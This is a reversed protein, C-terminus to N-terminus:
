EKEVARLASRLSADLGALLAEAGGEGEMGGSGPVFTCVVRLPLAHGAVVAPRAALDDRLAFTKHRLGDEQGTTMLVALGAGGMVGVVDSTRVTAALYRAMHALAEEAAALGLRLHLREFNALYFAAVGGVAEGGSTVAAGGAIVVSAAATEEQGALFRGVERVFAPRRLVPLSSHREATEELFDIRHNAQELDHRLGDVQGMMDALVTLVEPPYAAPNLGLMRVADRPDPRDGDASGSGYPFGRKGGGGGRQGHTRWATGPVSAPREIDAM